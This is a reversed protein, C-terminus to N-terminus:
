RSCFTEYCIKGSVSPSIIPNDFGSNACMNKEAAVSVAEGKYTDAKASNM